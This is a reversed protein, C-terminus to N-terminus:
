AGPAASPGLGAPPTGWFAPSGSGASSAAGNGNAEPHPHTPVGYSIPTTSSDCAGPRKRLDGGLGKDGVKMATTPTQTYSIAQERPGHVQRSNTGRHQHNRRSWQDNLWRVQKDTEFLVRKIEETRREQGNLAQRLDQAQLNMATLQSTLDSLSHVVTQLLTNGQGSLDISQRMLQESHGSNLALEQLLLDRSSRTEFLIVNVDCPLPTAVARYKRVFAAFRWWYREVNPYHVTNARRFLWMVLFIAGLTLGLYGCLALYAMWMKEFSFNPMLVAAAYKSNEHVSAAATFMMVGVKVPVKLSVCITDWVCGLETETKFESLNNLFEAFDRLWSKFPGGLSLGTESMILVVRTKRRPFRL